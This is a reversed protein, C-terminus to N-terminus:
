IKVFLNLKKRYNVLNMRFVFKRGETSRKKGIRKRIACENFYARM